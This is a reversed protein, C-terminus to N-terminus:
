KGDEDSRTGIPGRGAELEPDVRMEGGSWGAGAGVLDLKRDRNNERGELSDLALVLGLVLALRSLGSSVAGFPLFPEDLGSEEEEAECANPAFCRLASKGTSVVTLSGLSDTDCATGRDPCVERLSTKSLNPLFALTSLEEEVTGSLATLGPLLPDRLGGKSGSCSGLLTAKLILVPIRQLGQSM